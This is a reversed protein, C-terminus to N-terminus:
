ICLHLIHQENNPGDIHMFTFLYGSFLHFCAVPGTCIYQDMCRSTSFISHMIKMSYIVIKVTPLVEIQPFNFDNSSFMGFIVLLM